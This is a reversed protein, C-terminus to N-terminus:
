RKLASASVNRISEDTMAASEGTTGCVVIADTGGAIQEDIRDAFNDYNISGDETMPDSYSSCLRYFNDKEDSVETNLSDFDTSIVRQPMFSLWKM